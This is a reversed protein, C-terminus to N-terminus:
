AWPQRSPGPLLQEAALVDGIAGFLIQKLVDKLTKETQLLRMVALATKIGVRPGTVPLGENWVLVKSFFAPLHNALYGGVNELREFHHLAFHSMLAVAQASLIGDPTDHTLKAQIEAVELVERPTKLVGLPVARMAAGNKDSDPRIKEIFESGTKTQELFVQFGQSYGKRPDRQFCRVFAEAFKERTYPPGDILVEAVAVSMQTDDTYMGPKLDKHKPHQGFGEFRLAYDKVQQDRPFKLYETAACYADGQAIRLLM